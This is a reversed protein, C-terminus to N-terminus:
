PTLWDDEYDEDFQHCWTCGYPEVFVDYADCILCHEISWTEDSYYMNAREELDDRRIDDLM